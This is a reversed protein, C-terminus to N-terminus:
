TSSPDEVVETLNVALVRTPLMNPPDAVLFMPALPAGDYQFLHLKPGYTPDRFIRWQVMYETQNYLTIINSVPACPDQVQIRGDQWWPTLSISGNSNLQYTGHQFIVIGKICQPYSANGEFRYLAQEWFGDNTFSYSIGATSPYIFSSNLPNAFDPGTRVHQSGSSWTGQISTANHIADYVIDQALAVLPAVATAVLASWKMNFKLSPLLSPLTSPSLPCPSSPPPASSVFLKRKWTVMTYCEQCNDLKIILVDEAGINVLQDMVDAARTAEVMSSVAVWEGDELPSVTAARRGPTVKTAEALKERRVNYQCVVFKQSALVGAIRQTIQTQLPLFHPHKPKSSTILVAESELLTAIAHLGAARMTDGSEVLDVIGDALGLACAAEVSGGVYEINTKQGAQLGHEQDLKEFYKRALVEFSTVIRRGVLSASELQNFEGKEPVQVQLKCKGFGLKLLQTTHGEMEAELIVDQGTIGLDVNGEGVFRPIDAAPLFVLAINLNRVLAVDLRHSRTYQVDAGHLLQISKEYLRGKKPIAFLLRGKISESILDM